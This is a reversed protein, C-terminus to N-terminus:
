NSIADIRNLEPIQIDSEFSVTFLKMRPYKRSIKKGNWYNKAEYMSYIYMRRMYYVVYFTNSHSLQLHSKFVSMDVDQNELFDMIVGMQHQMFKESYSYDKFHMSAHTKLMNTNIKKLFMSDLDLNSTYITSMGLVEDSIDLCKNYIYIPNSFINDNFYISDNWCILNFADRGEIFVKVDYIHLNKYSDAEKYSNITDLKKRRTYELTIEDKIFSDVKNECNYNDQHKTSSKYCSTIIFLFAIYFLKMIDLKENKM